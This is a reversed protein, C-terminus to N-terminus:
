RMVINLTLLQSKDGEVRLTSDLHKECFERATGAIVATSTEECRTSKGIDSEPCM